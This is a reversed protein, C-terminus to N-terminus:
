SQSLISSVHHRPHPLYGLCILHEPPDTLEACSLSSQCLFESKLDSTPITVPKFLVVHSRISDTASSVLYIPITVRRISLITTHMAQLNIDYVLLCFYSGSRITYLLAVLNYQVHAKPHPFLFFFVFCDSTDAYHLSTQVYCVQNLALMVSEEADLRAIYSAEDRTLFRNLSIAICEPTLYWIGKMGKSAVSSHFWIIPWSLM